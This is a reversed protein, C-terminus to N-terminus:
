TEQTMKPLGTLCLSGGAEECVQAPAWALTWAQHHSSALVASLSYGSDLAPNACGSLDLLCVGTPREKVKTAEQSEQPTRSHGGGASLTLQCVRTLFEKGPLKCQKFAPSPTWLLFHSPWLFVPLQPQCPDSGKM